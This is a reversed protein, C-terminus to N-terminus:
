EFLRNWVSEVYNHGAEYMTFFLGLLFFLVWLGVVLVVLSLLLMGVIQVSFVSLVVWRPWRREWSSMPPIALNNIRIYESLMIWEGSSEIRIIESGSVLKDAVMQLVEETTFSKVGDRATCLGITKVDVRVSGVLEDPM